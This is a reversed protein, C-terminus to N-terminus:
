DRGGYSSSGYGGKSRTSSAQPFVQKAVGSLGVLAVVGLGLHALFEKRDLEKKMLDDFLQM